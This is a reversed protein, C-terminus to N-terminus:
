YFYKTYVDHLLVTYPLVKRLSLLSYYRREFIDNSSYLFCVLM